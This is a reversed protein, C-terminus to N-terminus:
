PPVVNQSATCNLGSGGGSGRPAVGGDDDPQCLRESGPRLDTDEKVVGGMGRGEPRKDMRENMLFFVGQGAPGTLAAGFRPSESTSQLGFPNRCGTRPTVRSERCENVIADVVLRPLL